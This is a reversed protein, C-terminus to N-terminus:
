DAGSANSAVRERMRVLLDSAGDRLRGFGYWASAEELLAAADAHPAVLRPLIRGIFELAGPLHDFTVQARGTKRNLFAHASGQVTWAIPESERVFQFVEAPSSAADFAAFRDDSAAAIAAVFAGDHFRSALDDYFAAIALDGAPGCRDEIFNHGFQGSLWEAILGAAIGVNGHQSVGFLVPASRATRLPRVAGAVSLSLLETRASRPRRHHASVTKREQSRHQRHSDTHRLVRAGPARGAGDTSTGDRDAAPGGVERLLAQRDIKGTGTRPLERVFQVIRPYKYPLLKHKVYDQLMRTADAPDFTSDNMVVFAKLTMRRNPLEFALVACERVAPHDALCLQVEIPHVWQGSVKVLDDNRGRFFYFGDPDRAFRDGTRIWGGAGITKATQEPNNWYLPMSSHGRIWLVGEGEGAIARGRRDELRFEYGPVQMGAAGPKKRDPLNSLYVNLMETAGLCEVIDLGTMQYWAKSVDTPLVEAASVALRISSFDARAGEAANTLATYLTPLGFFVTPRYRTIAEFIPAPRSKGPLLLSTAGVSFPFTISNGFGYSFFIKAVSFCIDDPALRLVHRGYSHHTYPMDHQLHVVGKPRGTSGSSYMWFAMEDRHTDAPPLRDPFNALWADAHKVNARADLGAKGNVVILTELPTGACVSDAFREILDAEAIAAKAGADILYFRLLEAPTLPNILLPVLGARVAGFFAAPYAPTDDLLLLVRDGRALGLSLLAHGWRSADACLEAYSRRGAPGIVADSAGGNRALNQFLVHSANYRPPIDFAIETAGPCDWPVPDAVPCAAKAADRRALSPDCVRAPSRSRHDEAVRM